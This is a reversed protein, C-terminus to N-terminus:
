KKIVERLKNYIRQNTNNPYYTTLNKYQNESKKILFNKDLLANLNVLADQIGYYMLYHTLRKKHCFHTLSGKDKLNYCDRYKTIDFVPVQRSTLLLGATSFYTLCFIFKKNYNILSGCYIEVNDCGKIESLFSKRVSSRRPHMKVFVNYNHTKLFQLAAKFTELAKENSCGYREYGDRLLIIVNKSSKSFSTIKKYNLSLIPAGSAFFYESYEIKSRTSLNTNELWLDCKVRRQKVKLKAGSPLRQIGFAHPFVVIKALSNHKILSNLLVTDKLNYDRFILDYSKDIFKFISLFKIIINVVWNLIIYVFFINEKSFSLLKFSINEFKKIFLHIKNDFKFVNFNSKDLNYNKIIKEIKSNSKEINHLYIDVTDNALISDTLFPAIWDLEGKSEHIFIFIKM